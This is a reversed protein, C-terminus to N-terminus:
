HEFGLTEPLNVREGKYTLGLGPAAVVRGIRTFHDIPVVVGSKAIMVIQYDDGGTVQKLIHGIEYAQMALPVDDLALEIGFGNTKTLTQVDQLLGDSVDMSASSMESVIRAISRPVLEPVRYLQVLEPDTGAMAAELGLVGFGIKGSVWVTDGANIQGARRVPAESLCRGTLTLSLVLPGDTSVFDGGILDFDFAALDRAIGSMLNAFDAEPVGKPWAVSLLAEVPVAGKSYIDSVNVRILKQGVTDLPDSSLFHVGEVLTDMTVVQVGGISLSAVDDRLDQAGDAKVLPRIYKDIWIRESM